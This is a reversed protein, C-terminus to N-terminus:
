GGEGNAPAYRAGQQASAWSIVGKTIASIVAERGEPSTLRERDRASSLFGIEILVSPIDPAKLVRFGASQLARGRLVKSKETLEDVLEEALSMSAQDTARRSLNILIEAVDSEAEDVDVGSIEDARNHGEVLSAAEEDSAEDSLTYVSAGSAVGEELADAHISLMIDAGARRARAVRERLRVFEDTERVLVAKFGPTANLIDAIENAYSLVLEKEALSGHSAGADRGGHGPDLAVVVHTKLDPQQDNGSARAKSAFTAADEPALLMVFRAPATEDDDETYAAVIRAPARLDVVMRGAGSPSVGFRLATVLPVDADLGDIRWALDPFDVILRPPDTLAHAEFGLRGSLALTIRARDAEAATDARLGVEGAQAAFLTFISSLFALASLRLM